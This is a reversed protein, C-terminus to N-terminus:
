KAELLEPRDHINGIVEFESPANIALGNRWHFLAYYVEWCITGILGSPIDRVIDGEFLKVGNKDKLGTYEGMTGPDVLVDKLPTQFDFVFPVIIYMQKNLKGNEQFASAYVYNGYVWEGTDTRKGRFEIDRM